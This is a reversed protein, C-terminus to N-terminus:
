RVLYLFSCFVSLEEYETINKYVVDLIEQKEKKKRTVTNAEYSEYM